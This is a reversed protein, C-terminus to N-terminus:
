SVLRSIIRPSYTICCSTFSFTYFKYNLNELETRDSLKFVVAKLVMSMTYVTTIITCSRTSRPEICIVSTTRVKQTSYHKSMKYSIISIKPKPTCGVSFLFTDFINDLNELGLRDTLEFIISNLVM